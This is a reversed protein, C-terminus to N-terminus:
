IMVWVQDPHTWSFGSRQGRRITDNAELTGLLQKHAKTKQLFIRLCLSRWELMLLDEVGVRVDSTYDRHDFKLKLGYWSVNLVESKTRKWKRAWCQLHSMWPDQFAEQTTEWQHHKHRELEELASVRGTELVFLLDTYNNGPLSNCLLWPESIASHKPPPLFFMGAPLYRLTLIHGLM